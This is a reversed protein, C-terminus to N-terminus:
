LEALKEFVWAWLNHKGPHLTTNQLLCVKHFSIIRLTSKHKRIINVLTNPEIEGMGIDLEQLNSFKIPSPLMMDESNTGSATLKTSAPTGLWSLMGERPWNYNLRLHHVKSLKSIFKTLHFGYCKVEGKNRPPDQDPALKSDVDLFITTLNALVPQILTELYPPVNFADDELVTNRLIVEIRQPRTTTKGLARLLNIFVCGAYMESEDIDTLHRNSARHIKRPRLLRARTEREYTAEGYSRWASNPADRHRTQSNFDRLGVAVLHPLNSFAEVLM